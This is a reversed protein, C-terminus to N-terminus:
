KIADWTQRSGDYRWKKQFGQYFVAQTAGRATGTTERSRFLGPLSPKVAKEWKSKLLRHISPVVIDLTVLLFKM